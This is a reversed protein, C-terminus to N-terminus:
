LCLQSTNLAFNRVSEAYRSVNNNFRAGSATKNKSGALTILLTSIIRVPVLSLHRTTDAESSKRDCEDQQTGIRGQLLRVGVQLHSPTPFLHPFGTTPFGDERRCYQRGRSYQHHRRLTAIPVMQQVLPFCAFDSLVKERFRQRGNVTKLCHWGNNKEELIGREIAYYIVFAITTRHYSILPPCSSPTLKTHINADRASSRLIHLVWM